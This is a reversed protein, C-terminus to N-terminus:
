KADDGQNLMKDAVRLADKIEGCDELYEPLTVGGRFCDKKYTELRRELNTRFATNYNQKFLEWAKSYTVGSTFAYKSIMKNLRQRPTGEINIGDLNNVRHEITQTKNEIAATKTEIQDMKIRVEKLSQASMIILDEISKPQEQISYTGTQRLAPLVEHTIWRKFSKAEPKRSCLVLNYLGTENVANVEGYPVGINLMAREDEDLKMVAQTVNKIDLSDCIDAAVFYPQGDKIVTRFQKGQYEFVKMLENM